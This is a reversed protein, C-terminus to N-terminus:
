KTGGEEGDVEEEEDEATEVVSVGAGTSVEGNGSSWAMKSARSPANSSGDQGTQKSLSSESIEPNPSDENKERRSTFETATGSVEQERRRTCIKIRVTM